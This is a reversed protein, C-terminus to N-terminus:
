SSEFWFIETKLGEQLITSAMPVSIYSELLQLMHLYEMKMSARLAALFYKQSLQQLNNDHYFQNLLAVAWLFDDKLRLTEM